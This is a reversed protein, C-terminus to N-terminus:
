YRFAGTAEAYSPIDSIALTTFFFEEYAIEINDYYSSTLDLTIPKLIGQAELAQSLKVM